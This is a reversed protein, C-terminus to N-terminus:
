LLGGECRRLESCETSKRTNCLAGCTNILGNEKQGFLIPSSSNPAQAGCRYSALANGHHGALSPGSFNVPHKGYYYPTKNM